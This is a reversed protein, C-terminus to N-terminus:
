SAAPPSVRSVWKKRSYLYYDSLVTIPTTRKIFLIADYQRHPRQPLFTSDYSTKAQAEGTNMKVTEPWPFAKDQLRTQKLGVAFNPMATAEAFAHLVYELTELKPRHADVVIDNASSDGAVGLYNGGYFASGIACYKEGLHDDLVSGTTVYDDAGAIPIPARSIHWNGSTVILRQGPYLDQLALINEAMHRDRPRGGKDFEFHDYCQEILRIYRGFFFREDRAVRDGLKLKIRVLLSIVDCANKRAAAVFKAQRSQLEAVRELNIEEADLEKFFPVLLENLERDGPLSALRALVESRTLETLLGEDGFEHLCRAIDGKADDISQIDCGHIKVKKAVSPQSANYDSLWKVLALTEENACSWFGTDALAVGPDGQGTLVFHNLARTGALSAELIIVTAGRDRVLFRILRDKSAFIEKSGHTMEGFGIVDTSDIIGDFFDIERNSLPVQPDISDFATSFTSLWDHYQKSLM